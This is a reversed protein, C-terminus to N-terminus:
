KKKKDLRKVTKVFNAFFLRKYCCGCLDLEYESRFRVSETVGIVGCDHCRMELEFTTVRDELRPKQTDPVEIHDLEESCHASCVQKSEVWRDGFLSCEGQDKCDDLIQHYHKCSGCCAAYHLDPPDSAMTM